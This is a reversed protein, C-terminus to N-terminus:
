WELLLICGNEVSYSHIYWAYTNLQIQLDRGVEAQVEESLRVM